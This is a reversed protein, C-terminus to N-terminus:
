VVIKISGMESPKSTELTILRPGRKKKVCMQVLDRRVVHKNKVAPFARLVFLCQVGSHFIISAQRHSMIDVVVSSIQNFSRYFPKFVFSICSKQFAFRSKRSALERDLVTRKSGLFFM